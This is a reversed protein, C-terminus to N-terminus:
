SLYGALMGLFTLTYAALLYIELRIITRRMEKFDNLTQADGRITAIYKFITPFAIPLLAIPIATIMVPIERNYASAIFLTLSFLFFILGCRIVTKEGFRVASTNLGVKADADRDGAIHITHGGAQMFLLVVGLSIPFPSCSSACNWGAFYPVFGAGVGAVILDIIPKSKLHIKPHSYALWLLFYVLMIIQFIRGVFISLVISSSLFFLSILLGSRFSIEGRAMPLKSKYRNGRDNEIDFCQNLIFISATMLCFVLTPLVLRPAPFRYKEFTTIIGTFFAILWSLWADVRCARFLTSGLLDRIPPIGVLYQLFRSSSCSLTM